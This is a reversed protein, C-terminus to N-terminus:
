QLMKPCNLFRPDRKGLSVDSTKADCAIIQMVNSIKEPQDPLPLIRYALEVTSIGENGSDFQNRVCDGIFLDLVRALKELTSDNLQLGGATVNNSVDRLLV